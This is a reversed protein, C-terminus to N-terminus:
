IVKVQKTGDTLTIGIYEPVGCNLRLGDKSIKLIHCPTHDVLQAVLHITDDFEELWFEVVPEEKNERVKFKM